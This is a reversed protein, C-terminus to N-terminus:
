GGAALKHATDGVRIAGGVVIKANIGRLHLRKGEPSNVFRMADPGFRAAFKACGNHPLATVEVVAGGIALRTGPPLNDDSLDLDVYLQDGALPWRAPDQAIHAIARVNTLTVQADPHASGDPMAKSGRAQWNDGVLGVAPDLEAREVLDRADTAPRRVILALRGGDAPARRIEPLGAELEALTLHRITEM